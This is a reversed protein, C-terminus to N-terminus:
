RVEAKRKDLAERLAPSVPIGAKAALKLEAEAEALRGTSLCTVALNYHADGHKPDVELAARFETEADAARGAQFLATGLAVSVGAPPRPDLGRKKWRVLEALSEELQGVLRTTEAPTRAIGKNLEKWLIQRGVQDGRQLSLIAQQLEHISRDLRESMERRESAGLVSLCRFVERCAAFAEAAEPFRRLGMLAQGQAYRAQALLPDARLAGDLPELAEQFRGENAHIQGAVYSRYAEERAAPTALPPCGGEPLALAATLLLAWV